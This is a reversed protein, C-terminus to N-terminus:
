ILPFHIAPLMMSHPMTTAGTLLLAGMNGTSDVRVYGDEYEYNQGGGLPQPGFPASFAGLGSFDSEVNLLPAFSAGFSWRSKTAPADIVAGKASYDGAFSCPALAALLFLSAYRKM